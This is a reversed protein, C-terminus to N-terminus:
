TWPQNKIWNPVMKGITSRQEILWHHVEQGKELDWVHKGLWSRTAKWANFGSKWAPSDRLRESQALYAFTICNLITYKYNSDM